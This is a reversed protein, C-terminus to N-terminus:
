LKLFLFVFMCLYLVRSVQLLEKEEDKTMVTPPGARGQDNQNRIARMLSARKIKQGVKEVSTRELERLFIKQL